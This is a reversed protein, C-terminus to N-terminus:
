NSRRPDPVVIFEFSTAEPTITVFRNVIYKLDELHKPNCEILKDSGDPFNTTIFVKYRM